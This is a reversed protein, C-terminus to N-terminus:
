PSWVEVQNREQVEGPGEQAEELGVVEEEVRHVAEALGGQDELDELGEVPGAEQWSAGFSYSVKRDEAAAAMLDVEKQGLLDVARAV